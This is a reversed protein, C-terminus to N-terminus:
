GGAGSGRQRLGLSCACACGSAPDGLSVENLSPYIILCNMISTETQRRDDADCRATDGRHFMGVPIRAKIPRACIGEALLALPRTVVLSLASSSAQARPLLLSAEM